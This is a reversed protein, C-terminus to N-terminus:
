KKVKSRISFTTMWEILIEKAQKESLKFEDELYLGAGYMNTVGSKRLEDLYIFYKEM